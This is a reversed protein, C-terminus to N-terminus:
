GERLLALRSEARFLDIPRDAIDALGSRPTEAIVTLQHDRDVLVDLLAVFRQRAERSARSLPPVGTLVWTGFRDAVDLYDEAISPSELLDAFDFWVEGDRVARARLSRHGELVTGAEGSAPPTLGARRAAADLERQCAPAIDTDVAGAAPDRALDQATVKAGGAVIWRGTAFRSGRVADCLRYDIGGDLTRVTFRERLIREGPAFVHRYAPTALLGEPEYNSTILTPIGRQALEGLLLNLLSAGGPDHVHLEDFFFLQADALLETVTEDIAVRASVGGSFNRQLSRFFTHFHVRRKSAEPVPAAHFLESMLWTKGRGAPGHVYFGLRTEAAVADEADADGSLADTLYDTVESVLARQDADLLLGGTGSDAGSSAGAGAEIGRVVSEATFAVAM